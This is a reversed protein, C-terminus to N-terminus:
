EDPLSWIGERGSKPNHHRVIVGNAAMDKLRYHVSRNLRLRQMNDIFVDPYRRIVFAVIETMKVPRKSKYLSLCTLITRTLEGYPLNIRRYRTNIPQILNIDVEIEHLSLAQDIASLSKKLSSLEKILNRAEVLSSKTKKIEADLRARKDILWKLSSPIRTSM